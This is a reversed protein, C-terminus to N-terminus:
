AKAIKHTVKDLAIVFDEKTLEGMKEAVEESPSLWDMTDYSAKVMKREYDKDDLTLGNYM